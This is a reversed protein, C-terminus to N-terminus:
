EVAGHIALGASSARDAASGISSGDNGRRPPVGSAPGARADGDLARAGRRERLDVGPEGAATRGNPRGPAGGNTWEAAGTRRWEDMRGRVRERM